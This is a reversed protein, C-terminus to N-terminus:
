NSKEKLVVGVIATIVAAIMLAGIWTPFMFSASMLAIGIGLWTSPEISREKLWTLVIM